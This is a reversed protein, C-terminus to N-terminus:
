FPQYGPLPSLIGRLITVVLWILVPASIVQILGKLIDKSWSNGKEKLGIIKMGGALMMCITSVGAVLGLCIAQILALTKEVDPPLVSGVTMLSSSAAFTPTTTMVLISIAISATKILMRKSAFQQKPPLTWVEKRVEELLFDVKELTKLVSPEEKNLFTPISYRIEKRFM